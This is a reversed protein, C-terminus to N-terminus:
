DGDASTFYVSIKLSESVQTEVLNKLAGLEKMAARITVPQDPRAAKVARDTKALAADLKNSLDILGQGRLYLSLPVAQQIEEIAPPPNKRGNWAAMEYLSRWQALWAQRVGGSLARPFGAPHSSTASELPKGMSHWRLTELGGIYQNILEEMRMKLRVDDLSAASKREQAIAKLAEGERQIDGALQAAYVCAKPHQSFKWLVLELAPFGKAAVPVKDLEAIDKPPNELAQEVLKDRTPQFDILRSTRRTMLPGIEVTSLAEWDLMTQTWQSRAAQLTNANCPTQQIKQQLKVASTQFTQLRPQLYGVDVSNIWQVTSYWPVARQASATTSALSGIASVVLIAVRPIAVLQSNKMM